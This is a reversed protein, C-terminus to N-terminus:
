PKERRQVNDILEPVVDGRVKLFRGNIAGDILVNRELRLSNQDHKIGEAGYSILTKNQTKPGQQIVNEVLTVVGGNPTDVGYSSEGDSGDFILTNEIHTTRARSKVNHGVHARHFKSFRIDLRDAKGIYINHTKGDGGGNREFESDVIVVSGEPHGGLIGNQNHHFYCNRITLGRGHLRIGAGNGDSVRAGSFEINEVVTDDGMIVWIGKGQAAKGDAQLHARGGVGRLTLRSQKWVTVDGAYIGARIEIVDGDRAKKAAEAVTEYRTGTRVILVGPSAGAGPDEVRNEGYVNGPSSVVILLFKWMM